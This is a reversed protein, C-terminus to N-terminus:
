HIPCPEVKWIESAYEAISRDSSFKGSGAVNLIAKHAWAGPEAYLAGLRDQANCYSTLDALHMYHDGQTLLMDRLPAFVGPESPSFYDSFMLDLAARTEPENEYHWHPNYWARSNEVQEVTLGFLFMNEEGAEEAMEITAGDRTGVTLAGNMMFKMNSTGSAEYGATSIQNSVDSAPILREALSVNYEPLFVVNLRGRAAPDADITSALNNIFKIILKALKYAPAAKGAFFFTRPEIKMGPNERLRNYCIVIRLANMLQRKYEHIRKIHCDFITDPDVIRGSTSKLWNAFQVKAERKSKLLRERANSDEAFPKLQKLQSLDTIWRDGIVQTIARALAPNAELLWRRPTVGNTKNSFREPFMEALDKVTTTRLLKSHVASVGNTSHSGVIALNAMRVKRPSGEEVLSMRRVRGEDGPFRVRVEDLLRRNIEYILELHRPFLKEFWEVPWKELAEPLLTHNTYGLTKKTLDWAQDWGLHVDDLLIRLLEPVSMSPHTDNLQIAAKEPFNEWDSNHRQFRRVLDAMSCAVLFYEQLFRLGQGKTTSDDPYLVRTLSEAQLTEGLAGVFDGTDFKELDFYDSAAAAWLRLTNITKGGYGVVPRDFPIGILCSPRDPIVQFNGEQLKFSVNLKIEVNEHLRAIEWPDGYRLWNDPNENQWGDVISQKFMGYEYRLGYGTGPLQMTAMSDLFCAALRGLGGNGLGADPEQEILELWDIGHERAADPLLPDLLLNTINNALSRGILFEMSVYYIRKANEREYTNKTLVWRQALIDRVSCSFAEFRERASAVKPDIARDFVLHREYFASETGMFPMAGFGYPQLADSVNTSSSTMPVVKASGPRAVRNTSM